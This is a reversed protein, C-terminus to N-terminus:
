SKEAVQFAVRAGMNPLIRSDREELAVRVRVTGRARDATPIIAIVHSPIEWSPYAGLRVIARQGASVRQIYSESVDVEVELSDMDVITGIGTRTFGGGGSAPSVIEGQQAAKVTIIGAFPARVVTNALNQRAVNLAAAEVEIGHVAVEAAARLDEYRAKAGDFDQASILGLRLQEQNREFMPLANAVALDAARGVALMSQHRAEALTVQANADSDELRAIIQNADVKGGEEVLVAVLKGTVKASVTAQRRAVVYGSAELSPSALPAPTSATAGHSATDPAAPALSTPWARVVTFVLAGLVLVGLATVVARFALVGPGSKGRARQIRLQDLLDARADSLLQKM